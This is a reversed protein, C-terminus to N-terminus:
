CRIMVCGTGLPYLERFGLGQAISHARRVHGGAWDLDDLVLIGGPLVNPAFREVDTAAQERHSGDIHLLGISAPPTVDNSPARIVKVLETLGHRELRRVFKGLVQEYDLAQWWAINKPDTEGALAPGVAWPDIAITQHVGPEAYRQQALALPILSGGSFVGIEVITTPRLAFVLAALHSSKEVTCWTGGDPTVHEITAMLGALGGSM